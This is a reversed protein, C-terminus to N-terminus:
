LVAYISIKYVLKIIVTSNLAIVIITTAGGVGGAQHREAMVNTPRDEGNLVSRGYGEAQKASTLTLGLESECKFLDKNIEKYFHNCVYM